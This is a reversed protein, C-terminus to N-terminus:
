TKENILQHEFSDLSKRATSYFERGYKTLVITKKGHELLPRGCWQELRLIAQSVAPRSVHNKEASLTVSELNIADIFYKLASLSLEEIKM